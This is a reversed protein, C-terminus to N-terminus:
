FMVDAQSARRRWCSHLQVSQNPNSNSVCAGCLHMGRTKIHARWRSKNLAQACRSISRNLSFDWTHLELRDYIRWTASHPEPGWVSPLMLASSSLDLIAATLKELSYDLSLYNSLISVYSLTRPRLSIQQTQLEQSLRFSQFSWQVMQSVSIRKFIM